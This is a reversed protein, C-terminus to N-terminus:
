YQFDLRLLSCFLLMFFESIPIPWWHSKLHNNFFNNIVCTVVTLNREKQFRKRSKMSSSSNFSISCLSCIYPKEGPHTSPLNREQMVEWIITLTVGIPSRNTVYPAVTPNRKLIFEWILYLVVQSLLHNLVCRAHTLNRDQILEWTHNLVVQILLRNLACRVYTLNSKQILGWIFTLTAGDPSHNMVCFVVTLNRELIFEWM